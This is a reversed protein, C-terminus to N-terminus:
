RVSSFFTLWSVIVPHRTCFTLFEKVSVYDGNARPSGYFLVDAADELDQFTVSSVLVQTPCVKALGLLLLLLLITM